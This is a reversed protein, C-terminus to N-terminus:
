KTVKVYIDLDVNRGTVKAKNSADLSICQDSTGLCKLKAGETDSVSVAFTANSSVGNLFQLYSTSKGAYKSVGDVMSSILWNEGDGALEFKFIRADGIRDASLDGTVPEAYDKCILKSWEIDKSLYRTQNKFGVMIFEAGDKLLQGMNASTMRTFVVNQGPEPTPEPAAVKLNLAIRHVHGRDFKKSPVAITYTQGDMTEVVFNGNTYTGPVVALYAVNNYDKADAKNVATPQKELGDFPVQVFDGEASAGPAEFRVSKIAAGMLESAETVFRIQMYSAVHRFYLPIFMENGSLMTKQNFVVPDAEFISTKFNFYGGQADYANTQGAPVDKKTVMITAGDKVLKVSSGPASEFTRTAEDYQLEPWWNFGNDAAKYTLNIRDGQTFVMQGGNSGEFEARTENEFEASAVLKLNGAEEGPTVVSELEDNDSCATFAMAAAAFLMVSKFFKKM